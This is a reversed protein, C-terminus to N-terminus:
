ALLAEIEIIQDLADGRHRDFGAGGQIIDGHLDVSFIQDNGADAFVNDSGPGPNIWDAGDGGHLVDDGAGGFLTDNGLGGRILDQNSGGFLKDDGSGGTITNDGNGGYAIVPVRLATFDILDNGGLGLVEFRSVDRYWKFDSRVNFGWVDSHDVIIRDDGPTGRIKLVTGELSASFAPADAPLFRMLRIAEAQYAAIGGLIVSGDDNRIIRTGASQFTYDQSRGLGRDGFTIDRNGAADLRVLALQGGVTGSVGGFLFRGEALAEVSYVWNPLADAIGGQGFSTDLEGDALYMVAHGGSSPSWPWPKSNDTVILRGDPLLAGGTAEDIGGTSTDVPTLVFGGNGFSVDPHGDATFRAVTLSQRYSWYEDDVPLSTQGLTIVKGDPTILLDNVGTLHNAPDPSVGMEAVGDVGFSPDVNGSEDLRKLIVSGKVGMAVVVNKEQLGIAVGGSSQGSIGPNAVGGTGFSTDLKGERTLRILRVGSNASEERVVGWLRGQSDIQLDCASVSSLDLAILSFGHDGFSHDLTGDVNFRVFAAGVGYGVYSALAIIRGDAQKAVVTSKVSAPVSFVASAVGRIAFGRDIRGDATVRVVAFPHGGPGVRRQGTLVLTGNPGAAADAAGLDLTVKGASGYSRDTRGRQNIALVFSKARNEGSQTTGIVLLRGDAGVVLDVVREAGGLDVRKVGDKGFKRNMRGDASIRTLVVDANSTAAIVFSGDSLSVAGRSSEVSSGLNFRIRGSWTGFYPWVRTGDSDFKTLQVAGNVTGVSMAGGDPLPVFRDVQSIPGDEGPVWESVSQGDSGYQSYVAERNSDSYGQEGGIRAYGGMLVSQNGLLVADECRSSGASFYEVGDIGFSRDLSGDPNLAVSGFHDLSTTGAVIIRDTEQILIASPQLSPIRLNELRVLGGSGFSPDLSGSRDYRAVIIWSSLHEDHSWETRYGSGAVLLKGDRQYALASARADLPADIAQNVEGLDGFSLDWQGAFLHIRSELEDIM